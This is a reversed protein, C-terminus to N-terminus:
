RHSILNSDRYERINSAWNDARTESFTTLHAAVDFNRFQPAEIKRPVFLQATLFGGFESVRDRSHGMGRAVFERRFFIYAQTEQHASDLRRLPFVNSGM